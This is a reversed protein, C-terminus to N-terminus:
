PVENSTPPPPPEAWGGTDTGRHEGEHGPDHLVTQNTGAILQPQRPDPGNRIRFVALGSVVAFAVAVIWQAATMGNSATYGIIVANALTFVATGVAKLTWRVYPNV